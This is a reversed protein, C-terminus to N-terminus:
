GFRPDPIALPKPRRLKREVVNTASVRRNAARARAAARAGRAAVCRGRRRTCGAFERRGITVTMRGERALHTFLLIARWREIGGRRTTKLALIKEGTAIKDVMVAAGIVEAPRKEGQPGRPM